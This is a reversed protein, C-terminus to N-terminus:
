DNWFPTFDPSKPGWGRKLTGDVIFAPTASIGLNAALRLNRDLETNGCRSTAFDGDVAKDQVTIVSNEYRGNRASQLARLALQRSDKGIVPLERIILAISGNKLNKSTGISTLAASCFHCNHDSFMVVKRSAQPSGVISGCSADYLASHYTSVNRRDTISQQTGQWQALADLAKQLEEPHSQLYVASAHGDATCAQLLVSMGFAVFRGATM